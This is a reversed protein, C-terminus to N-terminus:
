RVFFRKSEMASLTENKQMVTVNGDAADPTQFSKELAQFIVCMCTCVYASFPYNYLGVTHFALAMCNLLLEPKNRIDM